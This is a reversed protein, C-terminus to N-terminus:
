TKGAPRRSGEVVQRWLLLLATLNPLAMCANLIDALEWAAKVSLLPATCLAALYCWRYLRQARQSGGTLYRLCQEGYFNWGIITSFAFFVLCALLLFSSLGAPWPLAARWAQETIRFGALGPVCWAGTVVLCLGTLSCIVITDLFTGTMTVLGQRVPDENSSCAAAIPTSGLGAENTFVGRGIGMRLIRRMTLGGAAGAAARPSFASVAILRLAAPIQARCRVLILVSCLVYVASMLPVVLSCVRSIRDAGGLLVMASFLVTLGGAIVAAWTVANGGATMAVSRKLPDFFGEVATTISNVQAVTGVGLLGVAAGVAAFTVALWRWGLGQEIYCFPGGLWKGGQRRRYRVALYGEAYQTAMGFLAAVMMWLLAGPGGAALATAVGVINGTGVRSATSVMLAEFASVAKTDGSKESVVRVSEGLLRVQVGATRITFYVGAALLLIILVYSYMLDNLTGVLGAFGNYLTDLM